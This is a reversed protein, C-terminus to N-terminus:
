PTRETAYSKIHSLAATELDTRQQHSDLIVQDITNPAVAYWFTVPRTQGIRNLRDRAQVLDDRQQSLGGFVANCATVLENVALSMTRIQCIMVMRAPDDSGFRQRMRQREDTPTAGSITMIETGKRALKQALIELEKTFVCFVVVRSEGLLQDNVISDIVQAKSDGIVHLVGSDDPLFGGTIQRLRMLSTLRNGATATDGSELKVLLDRTMESYARQEAANLHVPVVVDTTPPLDLVDRKRAVVAIKAMIAQMEDLNRYGKVEHGMFGGMTAYRGRFGNFTASRRSGDANVEGFAYPDAFRWQGFVDLPGHPMVTGTLLIRRRVFSTMRGMLRSANSTASKIKHSEDVIVLEPAFRRVGDLVKDAVTKSGYRRRSSLTDINIIELVLRPTPIDNISRAEPHSSDTFQSLGVHQMRPLQARTLRPRPNRVKGTVPAARFPQDGRSALAEAREVISGGLVEAWWNVKDSVFTKAQLVWTDTAAVPCVVLVRAEGTTSMLALISAYDLAVATKGTGPDFLLAGIGATSILSRLGLKQHRFRQPGGPVFKEGM